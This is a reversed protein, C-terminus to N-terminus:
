CFTYNSVMCETYVFELLRILFRFFLFCPFAARLPVKLFLKGM